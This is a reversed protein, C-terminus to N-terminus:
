IVKKHLIYMRWYQYLRSTIQIKLVTASDDFGWLSMLFHKIETSDFEGQCIKTYFVSLVFDRKLGKLYRMKCQYQFIHHEETLWTGDRFRRPSVKNQHQRFYNLTSNIHVVNGREAMKIWFLKDGCMKYQQYEKDLELAFQKRFVTSSANWIACGIAMREKIFDIGSLHYVPKDYHQYTGLDNGESDVYESSCYVVSCDKDKMYERMCTSLFKPECYDDSEAIWIVEGEALALGRNWQIFTSGSNVDNVVIHSVHPDDKYRNIVEVSNDPSKDDLIIVEFNDYDQNLVSQIRQDLYPAHSYNPIIVSVLPVNM